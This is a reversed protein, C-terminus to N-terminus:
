INCFSLSHCGAGNSCPLYLPFFYFYHCIEEEQAGLDSDTVTAMFDLCNSRTLFAIVFRSLTNFLLSMVRSIFTWITLATIKGTTEYLQSLQVTFFASRWLILAKLRHHQLLSWVGWLGKSLLSILGTLRLPSWGQINVPLVSASASAGTNQDDSIFLCSMKFDRISPFISPLLLLPFWLILHSSLMVSAIFRFRPLSQSIILSLSAQRAAIWPMAFPQICSPM